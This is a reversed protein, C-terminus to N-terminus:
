AGKKKGSEGEGERSSFVHSLSSTQTVLTIQTNVFLHWKYDKIYKDEIRGPGPYYIVIPITREKFTELHEILNALRGEEDEIEQKYDYVIIDVEKDNFHPLPENFGTIDVDKNGFISSVLDALRGHDFVHIKASRVWSERQAIEQLSTVDRKLISLEKELVGKFEQEAMNRTDQRVTNLEQVAEEHIEERSKRVEKEAQMKQEDLTSRIERKSSINFFILIAGIVGGIIPLFVLFVNLFRDWEKEVFERYQRNEEKLYDYSEEKAKLKELENELKEVKDALKEEKKDEAFALPSHLTGAIMLLLILLMGYRSAHKIIM